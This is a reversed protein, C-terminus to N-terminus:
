MGGEFEMIILWGGAWRVLRMKQLEPCLMYVGGLPSEKLEGLTM